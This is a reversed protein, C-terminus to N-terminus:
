YLHGLRRTKRPNGGSQPSNFGRVLSPFVGLPYVHLSFETRALLEPMNKSILPKPQLLVHFHKLLLLCYRTRGCM